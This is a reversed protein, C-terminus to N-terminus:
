KKHFFEVGIPVASAGFAILQLTTNHLAIGTIAFGAGMMVSALGTWKSFKRNPWIVLALFPCLVAPSYVKYCLLLAAVIDQLAIAFIAGAIGAVIIIMRGRTLLTEERRLKPVAVDLVDRSVLTSITLLCTDASSMVAALLAAVLLGSWLPSMAISSLQLILGDGAKAALEPGMVGRGIMGILVIIYVLPVMAISSAIVATRGVSRDRGSFLRSYIDPGVLFPVGLTLLVTFWAAPKMKESFPFSLLEREIRAPAAPDYRLLGALLVGLGVVLVVFQLLDTRLVSHQGGLCTYATFAMAVLAILIAPSAHTWWGASTGLFDLIKGAAILQAGIISMWAGVILVASVVRVTQGYGRGLLEPLTFVGDIDIRNIAWAGLALLGVAGVWLYWGAVLGMGAGLKSVGMVGFSGFITALMSGTLLVAGGSRSALFFGAESRDVTGRRHALGIAMVAMLYILPFVGAM